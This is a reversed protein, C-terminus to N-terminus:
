DTKGNYTEIFRAADLVNEAEYIPKINKWDSKGTKVTIINPINAKEAAKYEDMSGAIMWSQSLNVNHKNAIRKIMAPNPLKKSGKKRHHDFCYEYYTPTPTSMKIMSECREIIIPNIYGIPGKKQNSVIGVPYGTSGIRTLAEAAFEFMVFDRLGRIEKKVLKNIVGDRGM